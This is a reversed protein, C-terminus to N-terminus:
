GPVESNTILLNFLSLGYYYIDNNRLCSAFSYTPVVAKVTGRATHNVGLAFLILKSASRSM